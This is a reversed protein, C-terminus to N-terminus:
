NGSQELNAMFRFFSIVDHTESMVDSDFKKSFSKNRKGFKFVPGPKM